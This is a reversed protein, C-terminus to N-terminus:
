LGFFYEFYSDEPKLVKIKTQLIFKGNENKKYVALDSNAIKSISDGIKVTRNQLQSLYFFNSKDYYVKTGRTQKIKTIVGTINQNFFAVENKYDSTKSNYILTFLIIIAIVIKSLNLKM